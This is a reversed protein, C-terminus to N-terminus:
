RDSHACHTCIRVHVDCIFTSLSCHPYRDCCNRAPLYNGLLLVWIWASSRQWCSRRWRTCTWCSNKMSDTKTEDLLTQGDQERDTGDCCQKWPLVLSSPFIANISAATEAGLLCGLRATPFYGRM